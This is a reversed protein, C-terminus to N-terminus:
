LHKLRQNLMDYIVQPKKNLYEIGIRNKACLLLANANWPRDGGMESYHRIRSQSVCKRYHVNIVGLGKGYRTPITDLEFREIDAYLFEQRKCGHQCVVKDEMIIIAPRKTLREWLAYVFYFIPMLGLIFFGTWGEWEKRASPVAILLWIDIGWFALLGLLAWWFRGGCLSHYIRVENM